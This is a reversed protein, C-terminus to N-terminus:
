MTFARDSFYNGGKYVNSTFYQEKGFDIVMLAGNFFGTPGVYILKYIKKNTINSMTQKVSGVVM